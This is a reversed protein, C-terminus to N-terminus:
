GIAGKLPTRVWPQLHHHLVSGADLQPLTLPWVQHHVSSALRNHQCVTRTIYVIAIVDEGKSLGDVRHWVSAEYGCGVCEKERVKFHIKQGCIFSLRSSRPPLWVLVLEM